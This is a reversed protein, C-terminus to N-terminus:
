IWWPSRDSPAGRRVVLTAAAPHRPGRTVTSPRRGQQRPQEGGEGERGQPPGSLVQPRVAGGCGVRTCPCPAGRRPCLSPSLAAPMQACAGGRHGPPAPEAARGARTNGPPQGALRRTGAASRQPGDKRGQGVDRAPRDPRRHKSGHGGTLSLAGAAWVAGPQPPPAGLVALSAAPFAERGRRGPSEPLPPRQCRGQSSPPQLATAAGGWGGGPGRPRSADALQGSRRQWAWGHAARRWRAEQADTNHRRTRSAHPWRAEKGNPQRRGPTEEGCARARRPAPPPGPWLSAATDQPRPQPSPLNWCIRREGGPCQLERRFAPQAEGEVIAADGVEHDPGVAPHREPGEPVRPEHRGVLDRAGSAGDGGCADRRHSGTGLVLRSRAAEQGRHGGPRPLSGRESWGTAGSRGGPSAQPPWPPVLTPAQPRPRPPSDLAQEPAASRTGQGWVRRDGCVNTMLTEEDPEQKAVQEESWNQM